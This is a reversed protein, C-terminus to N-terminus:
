ELSPRSISSGHLGCRQSMPCRNVMRGQEWGEFGVLGYPYLMTLLKLFSALRYHYIVM